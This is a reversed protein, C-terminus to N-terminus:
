YGFAILYPNTDGADICKVSLEQGAPWPIGIPKLDDACSVAKGTTRSYFIGVVRPGIKVEVAADGAAAGGNIGFYKLVRDVNQRVHETIPYAALTVQEANVAMNAATVTFEIHTAM